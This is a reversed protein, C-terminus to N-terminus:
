GNGAKVASEGILKMEERNIQHLKNEDCVCPDVQVGMSETTWFDTLDVPTSFRVHFVSATRASVDGQASGFIVWGLPSKRAVLHNAHKTLGTHMYAHDIGVLVDVQGRGRRIKERPLDFQQALENLRVGKVEESICPIGVAKITHKKTEDMGAVKVVYMKTQVVEEDGGVKVINVTIDKGSLHLSDATDNRILSIQAGSDFLINGLKYVGNSGCINGAIVPLM